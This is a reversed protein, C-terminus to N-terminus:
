GSVLADYIHTVSLQAAAPLLPVIKERWAPVRTVNLGAGVMSLLHSGPRRELPRNLHISVQLSGLSIVRSQAPM